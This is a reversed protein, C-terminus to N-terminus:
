FSPLAERNRQPHFLFLFLEKAIILLLTKQKKPRDEKRKGVKGWFAFYVLCFFGLWSFCVFLFVGWYFVLVELLPYNARTQRKKRLSHARPLYTPLQHSGKYEARRNEGTECDPAHDLLATEFWVAPDSHTGKGTSPCYKQLYSEHIGTRFISLVRIYLPKFM